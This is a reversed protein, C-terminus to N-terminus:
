HAMVPRAGPAVDSRRLAVLALLAAAGAIAAACLFADRLGSM